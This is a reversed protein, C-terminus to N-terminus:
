SRGQPIEDVSRAEMPPFPRRWPPNMTRSLAHRLWQSLAPWWSAREGRSLEQDGARDPATSGGYIPLSANLRPPQIELILDLWHKLGNAPQNGLEPVISGPRMSEVIIIVTEGGGGKQHVGGIDVAGHGVRLRLLQVRHDLPAEVEVIGIGIRQDCLRRRGLMLRDIKVGEGGPEVAGQVLLAARAHDLHHPHDGERVAIEGFKFIVQDPARR